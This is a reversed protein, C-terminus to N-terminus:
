KMDENFQLIYKLREDDGILYLFGVVAEFGTSKNYQSITSHKARSPKKTNRARKFIETEEETLFPLLKDIRESQAIACVEKSTLENLEGTKLDGKDVNKMRVYLSFVADGIFALTISNMTKAQERSKLQRIM